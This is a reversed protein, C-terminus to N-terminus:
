LIKYNKMCLKIRLLAAFSPSSGLVETKVSGQVVM